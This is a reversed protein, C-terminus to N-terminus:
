VKIRLLFQNLYRLNLVLRKKGKNNVVVSLLSCVHLREELKRICRYEELETIAKTVFESNVLVSMVNAKHHAGPM